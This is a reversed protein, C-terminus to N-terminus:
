EGMLKRDRGSRAERLASRYEEASIKPAGSPWVIIPFGNELHEIVPEESEMRRLVIGTGTDEMEIHYGPEFGYRSRFDKPIVLRGARDIQVTRKM